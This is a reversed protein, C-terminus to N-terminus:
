NLAKTEEASRNELPTLNVPNGEGIALEKNSYAGTGKMADSYDKDTLMRQAMERAIALAEPRTRHPILSGNPHEYGYQENRNDYIDGDPITLIEAGQFTIRALGAIKSKKIGFDKHITQLEKEFEQITM